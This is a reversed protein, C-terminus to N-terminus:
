RSVTIVRLDGVNTLTAGTKILGGCREFLPYADNRALYDLPDLRLRRAESVIEHDVMAGAADTPGDEGDTGASVLTLDRWDALEALAALCLQQNRGGRGRRAEPVLQVTPEGGSILCDPGDGARMRVAMTALHRAVEEAPGEPTNASTMAHSYGLREACVGAGDVAAANNGIVVNTVGCTPMKSADFAAGSSFSRRAGIARTGAPTSDLQFKRLLQEVDPASKALYTPGAAITALDDCPVDSLILSVLHGARCARALGGGKILSLGRRVENLQHITAGRASLERTLEAKDGISVGPIPAPLLASGGGSIVCLCLDQPTLGGVLRLIEGVGAAATETPENVGSPRAAHLHVVQTPVVADDPVNVWGVVYKSRLVERGLAEELAAAMAGSAKGGGVIVIRRLSALPTPEGGIWLDGGDIQVWEPILQAPQVAEVGAQWIQLADSRLQELTRRM